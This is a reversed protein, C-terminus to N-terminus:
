FQSYRVKLWRKHAEAQPSLDWINLGTGFGDKLREFYLTQGQAWTRDAKENVQDKKTKKTTYHNHQFTIDNRIILKKQIDAKHTLDTDCFMHFYGPYYFYNNAEYFKRDMIPLTVIWGQTGDNTKLLFYEKGKTAEILVQGWNEFCDFDESIQIFLDHSAKEAGRNIADVASRNNNCLILSSVELSQFLDFYKMKDPDDMDLSLIYEVEVGASDVWRRMAKYALEPRSRSPHIISIM